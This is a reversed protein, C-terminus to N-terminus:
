LCAFSEANVTVKAREQGELALAEVNAMRGAAVHLLRIVALLPIGVLDKESVLDLFRLM